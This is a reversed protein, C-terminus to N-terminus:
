FNVVKPGLLSMKICHNSCIATKFYLYDFKKPIVRKACNVNNVFIEYTPLVYNSVTFTAIVLDEQIAINWFKNSAFNRIRQKFKKFSLYAKTPALQPLQKQSLAYEERKEIARKSWDNTANANASPRPLNM